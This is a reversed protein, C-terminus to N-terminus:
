VGVELLEAKAPRKFFGFCEDRDSAEVTGTFRVRNGREIQGQGIVNGDEDHLDILDLGKPVSGWVVFGRDDKVTMVLRGGFDNDQWKVSVVEGEIEIRGTIVPKREADQAAREAAREETRAKDRLMAAVFKDSTSGWRNIKSVFSHRMGEFGYDGDAVREACFDYAARRDSDENLWADRIMAARFAERAQKDRLQDKSTLNFKVACDHGVVVVEGAAHTFVAMYRARAGCSDCRGTKSFHGDAVLPGRDVALIAEPDNLPKEGETTWMELEGVFAYDAPDIQSPRHIDTRTM